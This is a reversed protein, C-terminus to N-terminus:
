THSIICSVTLGMKFHSDINLKNKDNNETAFEHKFAAAAAVVPYFVLSTFVLKLNAKIYIRTITTEFPFRTVNIYGVLIHKAKKRTKTFCLDDLLKTRPLHLNHQVGM